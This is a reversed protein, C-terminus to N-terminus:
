VGDPNIVIPAAAVITNCGAQPDDTVRDCAMQEPCQDWAVYSPVM